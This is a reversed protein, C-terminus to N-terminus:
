RPVDIAMSEQYADDILRLIENKHKGLWAARAAVCEDWDEFPGTGFPTGDSRRLSEKFIRGHEHEHQSVTMGSGYSDPANAESAIWFYDIDVKAIVDFEYGCEVCPRCGGKTLWNPKLSPETVGNV